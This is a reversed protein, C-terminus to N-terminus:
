TPTVLSNQTLRVLTCFPPVDLFLRRRLFNGPRKDGKVKNLRECPGVLTNSTPPGPGDLTEFSLPTFIYAGQLHACRRLHRQEATRPRCPRSSINRSKGTISRSHCVCTVAKCYYYYYFEMITIDSNM